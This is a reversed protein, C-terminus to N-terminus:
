TIDAVARRYTDDLRSGGLATYLNILDAVDSLCYDNLLQTLERHVGTHEIGADVNQVYKEGLTQGIHKGQVAKGDIESLYTDPFDYDDYWISDNEIGTLDYVKWDPLIYQDDWLESEYEDAAALAVDVHNAFLTEIRASFNRSDSEDIDRAWNLLHKGDFWTGNYTLLRNVNRHDCWDFLREYLDITYREDWNGRRFLVETEPINNLEDAYALSVAFLEFYQTDNSNEPPEEFPSATEIDIVLTGM